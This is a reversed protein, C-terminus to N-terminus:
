KGELAKLEAEMEEISMDKVAKQKTSKKKAPRVPPRAQKQKQRQIGRKVIRELDNLASIFQKKSQNRNLSAIAQTAKKGETETIQGGGKLAEFAEVFTQGTVRDYLAVFDTTKTGPFLELAFGVSRGTGVATNIGPHKRLQGIAKLADKSKDIATNIAVKGTREKQAKIRRDIASTELTALTRKEELGLKAYDIGLRKAKLEAQTRQNPTLGTGIREGGETVPAAQGRGYPDLYTWGKETQVYRGKATGFRQQEMSASLQIGQEIQPNYVDGWTPDITIGQQEMASKIQPYAESKEQPSQFRELFGRSLDGMISRQRESETDSISARKKQYDLISEARKPYSGALQDYVKNLDGGEVEFADTYDKLFAQDGMEQLRAKRRKARSIGIQEGLLQGQQYGGVIDPLQPVGVNLNPTSLNVPM